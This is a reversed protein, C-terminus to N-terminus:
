FAGSQFFVTYALYLYFICVLVLIVKVLVILNNKIAFSSIAFLLPITIGAVRIWNSAMFLYYCNPLSVVMAVILLKYNRLRLGIVAVVIFLIIAPWGFMMSVAISLLNQITM